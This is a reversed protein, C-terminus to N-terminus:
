ASRDRCRAACRIMEQTRQTASIVGYASNRINIAAFRLRPHQCVIRTRHPNELVQAAPTQTRNLQARKSGPAGPTAVIQHGLSGMRAPPPDM